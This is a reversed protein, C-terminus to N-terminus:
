NKTSRQSLYLYKVAQKEIKREEKKDNTILSPLKVHTVFKFSTYRSGAHNEILYWTASFNESTFDASM